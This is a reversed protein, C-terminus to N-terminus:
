PASCPWSRAATRAMWHGLHGPPLSPAVPRLGLDLADGTVVGRTRGAAAVVRRERHHTAAPGAQAPRQRLTQLATRTALLETIRQDVQQLHTDILATVHQCPPQGADRIAPRDSTVKLQEKEDLPEIDGSRMRWSCWSSTVKM